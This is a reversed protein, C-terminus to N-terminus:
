TLVEGAPQLQLRVIEPAVEHAEGGLSQGFRRDTQVEGCKTGKVLKQRFVVGQLLVRELLHLQGLEPSLQGENEGWILNVLQEPCGQANGLM